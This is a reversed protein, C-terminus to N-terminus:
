GAMRRPVTYASEPPPYLAQVSANMESKPDLNARKDAVHFDELIAILGFDPLSPYPSDSNENIEINM